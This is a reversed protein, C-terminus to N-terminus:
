FGHFGAHNHGAHHHMPAHHFHHDGIRRWREGEGERGLRAPGRGRGLSLPAAHWGKVEGQPSTSIAGRNRTLPFRETAPAVM